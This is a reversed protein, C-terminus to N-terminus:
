KFDVVGGNFCKYKGDQTWGNPTEVLFGGVNVCPSAAAALLCMGVALVAVFAVM